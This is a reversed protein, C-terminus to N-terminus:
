LANLYKVKNRTCYQEIARKSPRDVDNVKYTDCIRDIEEKINPISMLDIFKRELAIARWIKPDWKNSLDLTSVSNKLKSNLEKIKLADNNLQNAIKVINTLKILCTSFIGSSYFKIDAKRDILLNCNLLLSISPHRAIKNDKTMRARENSHLKQEDSIKKSYEEKIALERKDHLERPMMIINDSEKPYSSGKFKNLKGVPNVLRTIVIITECIHIRSKAIKIFEACTKDSKLEVFKIFGLDQELLNFAILANNGDLVKLILFEIYEPRFYCEPNQFKVKPFIKDIQKKANRVRLNIFDEGETHKLELKDIEKKAYLKARKTAEAMKEKNYKIASLYNLGQYYEQEQEIFKRNQERSKIEDDSYYVEDEETSSIIM